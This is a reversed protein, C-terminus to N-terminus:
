GGFSYHVTIGFTRPDNYVTGTYDLLSSLDCWSTSPTSLTAWTGSGCASMWRPTAHGEGLRDPRRCHRLRLKYHLWPQHQRGHLHDRKPLRLLDDGDRDGGVALDHHYNLGANVTHEPAQGFVNGKPFGPSGETYETHLFGYNLNFTFDPTPRVVSELAVGYIPRRPGQQSIGAFTNGSPPSASARVSSTPTTPSEYVSLNARVPMGGVTFRRDQGGARLRHCIRAPYSASRARRGAPEPPPIGGNFGGGNYGKRTTAYVM